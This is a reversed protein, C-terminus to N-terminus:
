TVKQGAAVRNPLHTSIKAGVLREDRLSVGSISHEGAYVGSECVTLTVQGGVQRPRRGVVHLLAQGVRQARPTRLQHVLHQSRFDRREVPVIEGDEPGRRALGRLRYEAVIFACLERQLINLHLLLFCAKFRRL